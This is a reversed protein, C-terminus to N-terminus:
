DAIILSFIKETTAIMLTAAGGKSHHMLEQHSSMITPSGFSSLLSAM